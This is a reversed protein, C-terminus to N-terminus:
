KRFHFIEKQEQLVPVGTLDKDKMEENTWSV